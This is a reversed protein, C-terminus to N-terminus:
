KLHFGKGFFFILIGLLFLTDIAFMMRYIFIPGIKELKKDKLIILAFINGVLGIILIILPLAYYVVIELPNIFMKEKKNINIKKININLIKKQYKKVRFSIIM